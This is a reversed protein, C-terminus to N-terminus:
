IGVLGRTAYPSKKKPEKLIAVALGTILAIISDVKDHPKDKAKHVKINENLDESMAANAANWEFCKDSSMYRLKRALILAQLQKAPESMSAFSQRVEVMDIGEKEMKISLQGGAYPDFGVMQLDFEKAAWRIDNEIYEFDTINGETIILHGAEEWELYNEYRSATAKKLAGEPLYHRQYIDIGGDDDPFIFSLSALDAKQALDLGVFCQKGKFKTIDFDIIGCKQLELVDLYPSDNTNVFINCHKTLFNKRNTQSHKARVVAQALSKVSVSHHLAPNAKIWVSEDEWEDDKDLTFEIGFYEDAETERKNVERILNREAVCIGDLQIGATSIIFILPNTTSAIGTILTNLVDGNVHAHLEDAIGLAIRHGDLGQPDSPMPKFSGDNAVCDMDHTRSVFWRKLELDARRLMKTADDFVIRAQERQRAVSYAAPSGNPSNRQTWLSVISCLFSKANGRAVLTFAKNFRKDGLSDTKTDDKYHWGYINAIIFVMWNMLKISQGVLPGKVHRLKTTYDLLTDVGKYDFVLDGDPNNRTDRFERDYVYRAVANKAHVGAIINGTLVDYAYVDAAEWYNIYEGNVHELTSDNALHNYKELDVDSIKDLYSM